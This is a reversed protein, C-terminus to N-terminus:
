AFFFELRKMRCEFVQQARVAPFSSVQNQVPKQVSVIVRVPYLSAVPDEAAVPVPLGTAASGERQKSDQKDLM